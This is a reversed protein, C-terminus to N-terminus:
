PKGGGSAPSCEEVHESGMEIAHEIAKDLMRTIPTSGDEGEDNLANLVDKAFGAINTVKITQNDGDWYTPHNDAAFALVKRGIKLSIARNHIRCRLPMDDM